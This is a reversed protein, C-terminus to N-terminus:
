DYRRNTKLKKFTDRFAGKIYNNNNEDKLIKM